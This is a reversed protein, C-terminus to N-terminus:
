KSSGSTKCQDSVMDMKDVIFTKGSSSSSATPNGAGPNSGLAASGNTASQQANPSTSASSSATSSGNAWTGHVKVEHGVHASFDQSSSLPVTQGNKQQLVYGGGQSEVCGRLTKAGQTNDSSNAASGGSQEASPNTTGNGSGGPMGQGPNMGTKGGQAFGFCSFAVTLVSAILLKKM